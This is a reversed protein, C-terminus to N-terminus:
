TSHCSIAHTHQHVHTHLVKSILQPVDTLVPLLARLLLLLPYCLLLPQLVVDSEQAVVVYADHLYMHLSPMDAHQKSHPM